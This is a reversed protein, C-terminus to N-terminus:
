ERVLKKVISGKETNIQLMYIGSAFNGLSISFTDKGNIQSSYIEKGQADYVRVTSKGLDLGGFDINFDSKSPNPYVLVENTTENSVLNNASRYNPCPAIAYKGNVYVFNYNDAVGGSPIIMYWTGRGQMIQLTTTPLTTLASTNQNYVFGNYNLVFSTPLPIIPYGGRPPPISLDCGQPAVISDRATVILDKKLITLMQTVPTAASFSANGAQSATIMTTGAGMITITNGSVTAVSTNASVYSVPLGSSATATLGFPAAGYTVTVPAFSISQAAVNSIVAFTYGQTISCTGQTATVTYTASLTATTPTGSIAGTTTNLSLGAPLAPSIAYVVSQTNGTVSANLSYATGITAGTATTNAFVLTPCTIVISYNATQTCGAGNTISITVSSTGATTPTGSIIGTTGAISLGAPLTGVSVSWTPTGSLGTQTLTQTYSSGVTGNVLSLPSIVIGPCVVAFTYGQMISCTGQTATVTYTASVTAVTPTGSIAGTATNLSLGAPLAPSVGYVVSQTNGTISANLSYATGVIGTTATTNAFVLTPCSIVISYNATQTCGAGNTVSITISSTGATTPMGSIIGTAGALSLGVPLTGVSVSWTPTGSLGTQTLTQTYSSGVIGNVLGLPNIVISPCVVAFTYGQTISCTGQTATVTYTASVTATTPAGSIAGTATNLSLGAPLAPSVGYVVSQTNGTVGANLSYATGVIGTTATTNAFVLTPCVIVISYVKTQTCGAGNSVSITINSTGATTPTGSIIGTAGAISLGAPLTGVSVSWTPTGSLGTQTLTQTYSSGVTGNVLSLPSIVISPCVVAFTYGQTVSCTGQTATITYTATATAVTPTGSIAGTATNLSLGTPLAPSVGYVVSQTNGTISANLSYATGVIGTTATTNAFVLTPCVIRISDSKTQTCNGGTINVTFRFTGLTTPTGSIVGSASALGLGNPLSGVSISWTPTGSLGTQTLTQTYASGVTGNPLSAPNIAIPPCVVEVGYLTTGTCGGISSTATITYESYAAATTFTGSIVGNVLTIGAPLVGSTVAYTYTAGSVGSASLTISSMTTGVTYIMDTGGPTITIVPCGAVVISFAKTASCSGNTVSITINSTGVATPTGTIAGTSANLLLGAPLTGVSVSWTPTGSLGTQTLTQTYASGVTGNSLSAPNITITPCTVVISYAKGQSCGGGGTNSASVVFNFSGVSTPTGSIVGMTPIIALGAPLTGSIISWTVAGTFGVQSINTSYGMGVVGAPLGVASPSIASTFTSADGTIVWGKSILVARAAGGVCYQLGTAGLNVNPQVTQVAWGILTADYNTVSLRSNEFMGLMNTVNAVNWGGINQNFVTPLNFSVFMGSMETVNSTNWNGINQNFSSADAFMGGMNTVNATNWNGINQNFAYAYYFMGAMNTVNSTNWSGINQNFNTYQFMESMDTVNITNWSGINQNFAGCYQFMGSMDTVSATNWSSIDGSFNHCRNFMNSMNVVNITNWSGINGNFNNCQAFMYSMDTVGSLNPNDTATYTLNSCGAFASEMSTWPNTGWQAITRLKPANTANQLSIYNNMYIRPFTGTISVTYTGASAYTHTADGTQTTSTSADGWNVTYNYGGGFTPITISENPTTTQWTTIFAITNAVVVISFTKTVSCSGDTVSITFNSTGAATPTGTIAGTSANLLLGAPLTGVSVSWTPTSLGTQALTQTYATGITAGPLSLTTIFKDVCVTVNSSTITVGTTTGAGVYTSTVECYYVGADASTINTKTYTASTAGSIPTSNKYWQYVNLSGGIAGSITLTTGSALAQSAPLIKYSQPNVYYNVPKPNIAELDAFDLLNSACRLDGVPLTPLSTLQNNNCYLAVLNAPLTPLSTLQNNDCYLFQLSAPLTITPLYAGLLNSYCQLEQLSAPLAPLSTLQNSSCWFVQLSAPLAPLNTLQNNACVLLTLSAPLAPLSTLQNASCDLQQLSAPLTITPLYAGLLNDNCVLTQLSAPLAPLSTLQNYYCYLTQLSTFYEIGSLNAINRWSVDLFTASTIGACTTEM